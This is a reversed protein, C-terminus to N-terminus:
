QSKGSPIFYTFGFNWIFNLSNTKYSNQYPSSSPANLSIDFNTTRQKSNAFNAGISSNLALQPTIYYHLGVHAEGLYIQTTASREYRNNFFGSENYNTGNSTQKGYAFGGGVQAYYQWKNKPESLYYRVFPVLSINHYLYKNNGGLMNNEYYWKNNGSAYSYGLTSGLAIRNSIFYAARPNLSFRFINDTIKVINAGSNSNQNYQLNGLNGEVFWNTKSTQAKWLLAMCVMLMTLSIRHISPKKM